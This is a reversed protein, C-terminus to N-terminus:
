LKKSCSRPNLSRVFGKASDKGRAIAEIEKKSYIRGKGIGPCHDKERRWWSASEVPTFDTLPLFPYSKCQIPRADYVSCKSDALFVCDGNENQGLVLEGDEDRRGFRYLVETSSLDLYKGLRELDIPELYVVGERGGM